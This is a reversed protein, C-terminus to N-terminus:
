RPSPGKQHLVRTWTETLTNATSYAPVASLTTIHTDGDNKINTSANIFQGVPFQEDINRMFQLGRNYRERAQSQLIADKMKLDEMRSNAKEIRKPLTLEPFDLTPVFEGPYVSHPGVGHLMANQINRNLVTQKAEAKRTIAVQKQNQLDVIANDFNVTNGKPNGLLFYQKQRKMDILAAEIYKLDKDAGEVILQEDANTAINFAQGMTVDPDIIAKAAAYVGKAWNMLEDATTVLDDGLEKVGEEASDLADNLRDEGMHLGMMGLIGGTVFGAAALPFSLIGGTVLGTALGAGAGALAMEWSGMFAKTWNMGKKNDPGSLMNAVFESADFDQINGNEDTIAADYADRIKNHLIYLGGVMIGALGLMRMGAFQGVKPAGGYILASILGKGIVYAGFAAALKVGYDDVFGKFGEEFKDKITDVTGKFGEKIEDFSIVGDKDTDLAVFFNKIKDFFQSVKEFQAKWDFEKIANWTTVTWPIFTLKFWELIKTLYGEDGTLKDGFLKLLGALAGFGLLRVLPNRDSSLPNKDKLFGGVSKLGDGIKGGLGAFRSTTDTEEENLSRRREEEPSIDTNEDIGFLLQTQNRLTELISSFIGEKSEDGSLPEIPRTGGGTRIMIGQPSEADYLKGSASQVMNATSPEAM